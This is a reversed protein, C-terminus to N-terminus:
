QASSKSVLSVAIELALASVVSDARERFRDEARSRDRAGLQLIQTAEAEGATRANEIITRAQERAEAIRAERDSAFRQRAEQRKVAATRKAEEVISKAQDETAILTSLVERLNM